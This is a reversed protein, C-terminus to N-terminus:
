NVVLTTVGSKSFITYIGSSFDDTFIIGNSITKVKRGMIDYIESDEESPSIRVTEGKNSPNPYCLFNEKSNVNPSSVSTFIFKPRYRFLAPFEGIKVVRGDGIAFLTVLYTNNRYRFIDHEWLDLSIRFKGDSKLDQAKNIKYDFYGHLPLQKGDFATFVLYYDYDIYEHMHDEGSTDKVEPDFCFLVNRDTILTDDPYQPGLLSCPNLQWVDPHIDVDQAFIHSNLICLFVLFCSLYKM